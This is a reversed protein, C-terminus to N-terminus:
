APGPINEPNLESEDRHECTTFELRSLSSLIGSSAIKDAAAKLASPIPRNSKLVEGLGLFTM